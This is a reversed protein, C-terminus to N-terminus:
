PRDKSVPPALFPHVGWRTVIRPPVQVRTGLEAAVADLGDIEDAVRQETWVQGTYLWGEVRVVAEAQEQGNPTPNPKFSPDDIIELISLAFRSRQEMSLSPNMAWQAIAMVSTASRLPGWGYWSLSTNGSARKKMEALQAASGWAVRWDSTQQIIAIHAVHMLEELHLSDSGHAYLAATNGTREDLALRMLVRVWNANRPGQDLARIRVQTERYDDPHWQLGVEAMQAYRDPHAYYKRVNEELVRLARAMQWLWPAGDRSEIDLPYDISKEPMHIEFGLVNRTETKESFTGGIGRPKRTIWDYPSRAPSSNLIFECPSPNVGTPLAEFEASAKWLRVLQETPILGGGQYAAAMRDLYSTSPDIFFKWFASASQLAADLVPSRRKSALALEAQDAQQAVPCSKGPDGVLASSDLASQAAASPVLTALGAILVGFFAVVLRGTPPGLLRVFPKTM